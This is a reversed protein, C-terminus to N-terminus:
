EGDEYFKRDDEFHKFDIYKQGGKNDRAGSFGIERQERDRNSIKERLFRTLNDKAIATKLTAESCAVIDVLRKFEGGFFEILDKETM